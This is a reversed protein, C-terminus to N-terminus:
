NKILKLTKSVGESSVKVFYIGASTNIEQEITKISTYKNSSIQQGLMNHIQLNVDSYDKGLDITFHGSSPNPYMALNSLINEDTGLVINTIKLTVNTPNCIVDFTYNHSNYQATVTTPLNCSSISNATLIVFEDNQNAEYTLDVLINGDMIANGQVDFVDYETSPTPGQIETTLIANASATYNGIHTLTGPFGGPSITGEFTTPNSLSVSGNGTITGNGTLMYTDFSLLGNEAIITGPSINNVHASISFTGTTQEKKIVGSNEITGSGRTFSINSDENLNIIGTTTNTITPSGYGLILSGTGNYNIAGENKLDSLGALSKGNASVINLIGRNILTGDGNFGGSFWNVGAPGNFDFIAETGSNVQLIGTWNIPGDLQGSLTGVCTLNDAWELIGTNSVNYTGDTLVNSANQLTLTGSTVSIIGDNNQLPINISFVGTGQARNIAGTNVITGAGSAASIYSDSNLNIVGSTLNNVTPSGYGIAWGGTGNFNIRGENNIIIQNQLLHGENGELNFAGLNTITGNGYIFGSNWILVANTSISSTSTISFHGNITLMANGQLDFSKIHAEGGGVIIDSGSPIIVDHDSNPIGSPSWNEAVNFSGGLPGIWTKTQASITLCFISLVSFFLLRKM